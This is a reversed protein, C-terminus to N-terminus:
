GKLSGESFDDVLGVREWEGLLVEFKHDFGRLLNDFDNPDEFVFLLLELYNLVVVVQNLCFEIIMFIDDTVHFLVVELSHLCYRIFGLVCLLM